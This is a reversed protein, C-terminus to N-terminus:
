LAGLVSTCLSRGGTLMQCIEVWPTGWSLGLIGLLGGLPGWIGGLPEWSARLLGWLGGVPVWSSGQPGWSQGSVKLVGRSPELFSEPSM